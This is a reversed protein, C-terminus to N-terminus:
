ERPNLKSLEDLVKKAPKGRAELDAAIKEFVPRSAKHIRSLEAKDLEIIKCGKSAAFQLTAKGAQDYNMVDKAQAWESLDNFVRQVDPSLSEWTKTNIAVYGLGYVMLLSSLYKTYDELRM